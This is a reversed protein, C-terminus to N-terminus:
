IARLTSLVPAFFYEGGKMTVFGAFDASKFASAPDGWAMPCKQTNAALDAKQQGIIPDIGAQTSGAPVKPFNNDNVWNQQTFEFQNELSSQYAMFLLGVGATPRDHLDPARQGYTIGRRPMIHSREVTLTEFGGTGRPNTKRIHGAFPCKVGKPDDDYNFNNPVPGGSGDHNRLVVPTGDEFRGVIMAGALESAEGVLKLKEALADEAEKFGEVNQELKRFVLFSGVAVKNAGTGTTVLAQTLPFAPDWMSVGSQLAEKDVDEALLLPQSRGDVYGFHEVGNGRANHQQNGEEVGLVTVGVAELSDIISDREKQLRDTDDDALILLAHITGQFTADWTASPLDNLVAARAKMGQRFASNAAGAPAKAAVGLAQYGAFSLLFCRVMGGDRSGHGFAEAAVLQQHASTIQGSLQHIAARIQAKKAPDFALFLNMTHDRGHGKLINAQFDDLLAVVSPSSDKWRLPANLPLLAM